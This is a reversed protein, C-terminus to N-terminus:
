SSSTSSLVASALVNAKDKEKKLFDLSDNTRAIRMKMEAFLKDPNGLVDPRIKNKMPSSATPDLKLAIPSITNKLINDRRTKLQNIIEDVAKDIQEPKIDSPMICSNAKQNRTKMELLEPTCIDEFGTLIADQSAQKQPTINEDAYIVMFIVRAGFDVPINQFWALWAKDDSGGVPYTFLPCPLAGGPIKNALKNEVNKSAITKDKVDDREEKEMMAARVGKFIECLHKGEETPSGGPTTYLALSDMCARIKKENDSMSLDQFASVEQKKTYYFGSMNM